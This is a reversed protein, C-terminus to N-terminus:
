RRIYRSDFYCAARNNSMVKAFTLRSEFAPNQLLYAVLYQYQIAKPFSAKLLFLSRM